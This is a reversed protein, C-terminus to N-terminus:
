ATIQQYKYYTETIFAFTERSCKEWSFSKAHNFAREGMKERLTESELYQTITEAISGPDNPDFYLGSDGLVEPLSSLESCAIPLGASMGELLTIGFTECTSAFVFIDAEKLLAPLHQYEVAGTLKVFNRESDVQDIVRKLKQMPRGRGGGILTLTIPYGKKRLQRAALIVMDQNKYEFIPSVYIIEYAKRANKKQEGQSVIERFEDNVGHFIISVNDLKGCSKQVRESSYESLFIVGDARRFAANQIHLILEVRARFYGYGFEKMIDPEYSLLDQSLVVSPNYNCLSSADSTFLIDCCTHQLEKSLVFAQWFLQHLLSKELAQPNHKILWPQEPIEDLLSKFSWIHVKRIGIEDPLLSSLIGIIHAKAGGSRNRSADIGVTIGM